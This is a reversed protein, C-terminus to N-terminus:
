PGGPRLGRDLDETVGPQRGRSSSAERRLLPRQRRQIMGANCSQEVGAYQVIARGPDHHLVDVARRDGVVALRVVCRELFPQPQKAGHAVGHLEGMSM